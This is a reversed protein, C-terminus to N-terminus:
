RDRPQCLQGFPKAPILRLTLPGSVALLRHDGGGGLFSAGFLVPASALGSERDLLQVQFAGGVVLSDGKAVTRVVPAPVNACNRASPADLQELSLRLRNTRQELPTAARSPGPVRGSGAGDRLWGLTMWPANVLEPRVTRPVARALRLRPLSRVMQEYSAFYQHPPFSKTTQGLNAPVGVVFLALAVVLLERRRRVIADAAVALAPMLLAAVIHLYRSSTAFRVGFSARNYGNLCQFAFAGVLMATPMALTRRRTAFSGDRWALVFGVVLMGGLVWGVFPVQGLAQFVGATGTRVWDVLQSAHKIKTNSASGYRAQWALFLVAAPVTQFLAPRWGRRILTALGVVGVMAIGVGSCMVAAIGAVLAWWDRRDIRGDHSALVMAVLGLFLPGAFAIQFAWLVDQGGAGFLVFLSAAATALWPGVGARRMIVRLV